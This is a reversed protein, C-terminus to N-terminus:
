KIKEIKHIQYQSLKNMQIEKKNEKNISVKDKKM